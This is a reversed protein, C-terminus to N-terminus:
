FSFLTFNNECLKCLVISLVVVVVVVVVVLLILSLFSNLHSSLAMFIKRETDKKKLKQKVYECNISLRHQKMHM